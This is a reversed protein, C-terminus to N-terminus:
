FIVGVSLMELHTHQFYPNLTSRFLREPVGLLVLVVTESVNNHLIALRSLNDFVSRFSLVLFISSCCRTMKELLLSEM